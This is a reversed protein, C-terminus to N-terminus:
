SLMDLIVYRDIILQDCLGGGELVIQVQILRQSSLNELRTGFTYSLFSYYKIYTKTLATTKTTKTKNVSPM